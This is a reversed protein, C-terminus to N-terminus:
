CAVVFVNYSRRLLVSSRCSWDTSDTLFFGILVNGLPWKEWMVPMFFSLPNLSFKIRAFNEIRKALSESYVVLSFFNCPAASSFLRGNLCQTVLVRGCLKKETCLNRPKTPKKHQKGEEKTQQRFIRKGRRDAFISSHCKEEGEGTVRWETFRERERRNKRINEMSLRCLWTILLLCVLTSPFFTQDINRRSAGNEEERSCNQRQKFNDHLKREHVRGFAFPAAASASMAYSERKVRTTNWQSHIQIHVRSNICGATPALVVLSGKGGGGGSDSSLAGGHKKESILLNKKANRSLVALCQIKEGKMMTTTPWRTKMKPCFFLAARTDDHRALDLKNLLNEMDQTWFNKKESGGLVDGTNRWLIENEAINQFKRSFIEQTKRGNEFQGVPILKSSPLIRKRQVSVIMSTKPPIQSKKRSEEENLQFGQKFGRRSQVQWSSKTVMLMMKLPRTKVATFVGCCLARLVESFLERSRIYPHRIQQPHDKEKMQICIYRSIEDACTLDGVEPVGDEDVDFNTGATGARVELRWM